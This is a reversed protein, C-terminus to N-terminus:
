LTFTNPSKIHHTLDTVMQYLSLRTFKIDIGIFQLILNKIIHELDGHALFNMGRDSGIGDFVLLLEGTM